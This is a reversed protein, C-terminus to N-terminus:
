FLAYKRGEPSLKNAKQIESAGAAQFANQCYILTAQKINQNMNTQLDLIRDRYNETFCLLERKWYYRCESRCQIHIDTAYRAEISRTSLHQGWHTLITWSFETEVAEWHSTVCKISSHNKQQTGLSLYLDSATWPWRCTQTAWTDRLLHSHKKEWMWTKYIGWLVTWYINWYHMYYQLFLPRSSQRPKYKQPEQWQRNLTWPTLCHWFFGAICESVPSCFRPQFSLNLCLSSLMWVCLRLWM